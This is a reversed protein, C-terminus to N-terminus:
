MLRSPHLRTATAIDQRIQLQLSALSEFKMVDRIRENLACTLREGYLTGQWGIIHVEVKTDSDDFTPNPGINIAAPWWQDNLSASGAYVGHAPVQSNIQTLNATPFGLERGRRAGGSVLGNLQYNQTLMANAAAIDGQALLHRVRSSSIMGAQDESAPAISCDMGAARCLEQLLATDGGRDRGFRFNPGEVMAGARLKGVIFQEFFDVASLSLLARDTPYAILADVGLGGLLEARRAITTLPPGLPRDPLLLAQPPPDFTLVVAPGKIKRAAAMLQEILQRHGRHVGDFNGVAVAAGQLSDPFNNLDTILQAMSDDFM